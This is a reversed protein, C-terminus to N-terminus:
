FHPWVAVRGTQDDRVKLCDKADGGDDCFWTFRRPDYQRMKAPGPEYPLEHAKYAKEALELALFIGGQMSKDGEVWPAEHAVKNLSAAYRRAKARRVEPEEKPPWNTDDSM